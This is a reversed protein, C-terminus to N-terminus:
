WCSLGGDVAIIQGTLYSTADSALFVLTGVMDEPKAMRGMPIRNSYKEEFVDNQGSAVGGPVLMNVRVGDAAWLAALHRTLGVAGAKSASYVAPSRIPRGHYESGEYIRQDPAMIGYISGTLIISGRGRKVMRKGVATSLFFMSDLNVGMIERWLEPDYDEDAAFFSDLDDGKTAANVHLIDIAGCEQEITEIFAPLSKIEALDFAYAKASIAYKEELSKADKDPAQLDIMILNAGAMALAECFGTGLIGSAGAVFATKGHLSFMKNDLM